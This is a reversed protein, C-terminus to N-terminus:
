SCCGCCPADECRGRRNQRVTQGTSPFYFETVEPQGSDACALHVGVWRRGQKRINGGNPPITAGCIACPIPYKNVAM